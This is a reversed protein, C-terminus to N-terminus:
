RRKVHLYLTNGTLITIEKHFGSAILIRNADEKPTVNREELYLLMVEANDSINSPRNIIANNSFQYSWYNYYTTVM